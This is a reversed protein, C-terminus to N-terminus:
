SEPSGVRISASGDPLVTITADLGFVIEEDVERISGDFLSRVDVQIRAAAETAPVVWDAGSPELTIEPYRAITWTPLSAIRNQVVFGFPCGTPQLVQQTACEDLFTDVREQVVTTFEETPEAQLDVPVGAMPADALVDVGPTSAIATDVSVRYLGPSFVLLPVPELPPADVGLPSVQRKDITFGNVDFSMSGRVTLDIVALPSEAFRWTPVVGVWGAPEVDFTTSGRHAGARYEVTVRTIEGDTTEGRPRISDISTLATSRLLADSATEPLGAATLDAGAVRVGPVALADAARGAALLDLYREVFATPSYFERYLMTGGAALAAALLVGVLALVILDTRRSRPARGARRRTAPADHPEDARQDATNIAGQQV